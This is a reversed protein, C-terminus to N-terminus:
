TIEIKWTVVGIENPQIVVPTELLSRILMVPSSGQQESLKIVGIEKITIADAGTNTITYTALGTIKGDAYSSAIATVASFTTIQNGSLNYDSLAPPTDGDGLVVGFQPNIISSRSGYYRTTGNTLTYLTPMDGDPSSTGSDYFLQMGTIYSSSARTYACANVDTGNTAKCSVYSSPVTRSTLSNRLLKYWNDLFM